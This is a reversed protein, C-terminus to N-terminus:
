PEYETYSTQYNIPMTYRRNKGTIALCSEFQVETAVAVSSVEQGITKELYMVRTHGARENFGFITDLKGAYILRVFQQFSLNIKLYLQSTKIAGPEINIKSSSVCNFVDSAKPCEAVKFFTSEAYLPQYREMGSATVSSLQQTYAEYLMVENAKLAATNGVGPLVKRNSLNLLNNGKCHYVKGSVPCQNVDGQENDTSVTVTRNQVKLSSKTYGRVRANSLSLLVGTFRASSGVPTYEIDDWRVREIYSVAEIDEALQSAMFEFSNGTAFVYTFVSLTTAQMTSYYRIRIADGAVCGLAEGPITFDSVLVNLGNFIYKILARGLQLSMVKCPLSTHGIAVAEYKSDTNTKSVMRIEQISQVGKNMLSLRKDFKKTKKFQKKKLKGGLRGSISRGSTKSSMKKGSKTVRSVAAGAVAGAMQSGTALSVLNSVAEPSPSWSSTKRKKASRPPTVFSNSVKLPAM